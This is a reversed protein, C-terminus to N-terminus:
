KSSRKHSQHTKQHNTKHRRHQNSTAVVVATKRRARTPIRRGADCRLIDGQAFDFPRVIALCTHGTTTSFGATTRHLRRRTIPVYFWRSYNLSSHSVFAIPLSVLRNGDARLGPHSFIQIISISTNGIFKHIVFRLLVGRIGSAPAIVIIRRVAGFVTTKISPRRSHITNAHPTCVALSTSYAPIPYFRITRQCIRHSSNTRFTPM